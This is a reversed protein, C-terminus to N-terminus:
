SACPIEAVIRTGGGAPSEVRLRGGAAEVRDALGRLGSGPKEAAGGIGDDEVAVVLLGDRRHASVKVTNAQAHKVVNAIGECAVFYAASEVQPPLRGEVVDLEIPIPTRGALSELAAALGEETLVAPHVGRALERLDGVAAQLEAVSAALVREVEPDPHEGLQRQATRLQLALAVLRQQAGDHLDREIRRREDDAAAVIRGRSAQVESLQARLEAELRANELALRAAAAAAAVLKPEDLLSPDHVLAGLRQGGHALETVARDTGEPLQVPRGAADVYEKRDPLWFAVELSPDGLARALADRLGSPQTNGLEVVLDGVTARALRARLLGALLAIPLAVFAAFEWWFLYTSDFPRVSPAFTLVSEFVGRLAIAIGAILLPAYIRRMRPTALVLRRAILVVFLGAGVGFLVIVFAKQVLLDAHDHGSVVRLLSRRRDANFELLRGQPDHLLLIALPFLLALAFGARVLTRGARGAVHGSPYALATYAAFAYGLSGLLFFVTFVLSDHSYRLQRALLAFGAAVLLPGMRNGSRLNWGVLGAAIFAWGVLVQAAARDAPSGLSDVQVRYAAYGLAIGALAIGLQAFRTM